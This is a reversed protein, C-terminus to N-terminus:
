EKNDAVQFLGLSLSESGNSWNWGWVHPRAPQFNEFPFLVFHLIHWWIYLSTPYSNRRNTQWVNCTACRQANEYSKVLYNLKCWVTCEGRSILLCQKLAALQEPSFQKPSHCKIKPLNISLWVSPTHTLECLEYKVLLSGFFLALIIQYRSPIQSYKTAMTVMKNWNKPFFYKKTSKYAKRKMIKNSIDFTSM